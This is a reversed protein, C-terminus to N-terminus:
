RKRKRGITKGDPYLWIFFGNKSLKGGHTKLDSVLSKYDPADADTTKEFDGSPGMAATWRVKAPDWTDASGAAPGQSARECGPPALSELYEDLADAITMRHGDRVRVLVDIKDTM